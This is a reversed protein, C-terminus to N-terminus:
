RRLRISHLDRFRESRVMESVVDAVQGAGLRRLDHDWDARDIDGSKLGLLHEYLAILRRENTVDGSQYIRIRSEESNAISEAQEIVGLYGRSDIAQRTSAAGPDPDRLLIARYLLNTMRDVWSAGLGPDVIPPMDELTVVAIRFSGRWLNRPVREDSQISYRLTEIRRGRQNRVPVVHVTANSNEVRAKTIRVGGGGQREETFEVPPYITRGGKSASLILRVTSGEVLELTEGPAIEAFVEKSDLDKAAIRIESFGQDAAALPYMTCVVLAAVLGTRIIRSNSVSSM